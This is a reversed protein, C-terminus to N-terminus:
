TSASVINQRTPHQRPNTANDLLMVIDNEKFGFRGTDRHSYSLSILSLSLSYTLVIIPVIIFFFGAVTFLPNMERMLFSKMNVADNICGRLEGDTGPYNIGICLAKKRGTCQSYQYDMQAQPPGGHQPTAPPM